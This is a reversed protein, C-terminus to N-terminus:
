YILVFEEELETERLPQSLVCSNSFSWSHKRCKNKHIGRINIAKCQEKFVVILKNNYSLSTLLPSRKISCALM